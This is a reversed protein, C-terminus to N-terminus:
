SLAEPRRRWWGGTGGVSVSTAAGFVITKPRVDVSDPVSVREPAGSAPWTTVRAAWGISAAANAESGVAVVSAAPM